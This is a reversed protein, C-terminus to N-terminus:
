EEETIVFSAPAAFGQSEEFGAFEVLGEIAADVEILTNDAPAIRLPPFLPLTAAGGTATVAATTRHVYRRGSVVMSLYYRKPIVIGPTWGDTVLSTGGQGAGNVRPTGPSALVIQPIRWRMVGARRELAEWESLRETPIRRLFVEFEMRRGHRAIDRVATGFANSARAPEPVFRPAFRLVDNDPLVEM